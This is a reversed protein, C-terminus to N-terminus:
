QQCPARGSRQVDLPAFHGESELAAQGKELRIDNTYIGSQFTAVYPKFGDKSVRLILKHREGAHMGGADFCGNTKSLENAIPKSHPDNASSSAVEITIEAGVLPNGNSDSIRGSVEAGGDSSCCTMAAFLMACIVTTTKM